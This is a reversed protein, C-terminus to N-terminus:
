NQFVTHQDAHAWLAICLVWSRCSLGLPLAFLRILEFVTSKLAALLEDVLADAQTVREATQKIRRVRWTYGHRELPQRPATGDEDEIGDETIINLIFTLLFFYIERFECFICTKYPFCKTHM